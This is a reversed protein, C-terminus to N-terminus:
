KKEIDLGLIDFINLQGQYDVFLEQYLEATNLRGWYIAKFILYPVPSHPDDQKLYEAAQTLQHYAKERSDLLYNDDSGSDNSGNSAQNSEAGANQNEDDTKGASFFLGRHKVQEALTERIELLITKLNFLSPSDQGCLKDLLESYNEVSVIADSCGKYLAQYFDVPTAAIAHVIAQSSVYELKDSKREAPLMEIKVAMEWDSWCYQKESRSSTIPLQSIVPLLKKNIWAILNTRYEIDGDEMKPFIDAWYKETLETLLQMAPAIGSFGYQHIQAELLWIGIQLDKTKKTLANIAIKSVEDWDAVKLDHQWDGMPLNPDDSSRANKIAAYVGNSKLSEGSPSEDSIPQILSQFDAGTQQQFLSQISESNYSEQNPSM